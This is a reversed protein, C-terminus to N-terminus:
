AARAGLTTSSVHRAYLDGHVLAARALPQPIEGEFLRLLPEPDGVVGCERLGELWEIMLPMRSGFVLRHIFDGPVDVGDLSVAHLSALFRAIVPAVARREEETLAAADATRGALRRYGAFPWPFRETARGIWVPVPIALPVRPAIRSLVRAETELLGVAIERRPFRFVIGGDILYATNDAGSGFAEIRGADLEPFQERILALALDADAVREAQWLQSM